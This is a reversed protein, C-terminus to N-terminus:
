CCVINPSPYVLEKKEENHHAQMWIFLLKCNGKVELYIDFTLIEFGM